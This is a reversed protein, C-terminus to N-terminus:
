RLETLHSHPQFSPGDSWKDAVIRVEADENLGFEGHRIAADVHLIAKRCIAPLNRDFGAFAPDGSRNM